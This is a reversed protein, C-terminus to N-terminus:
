IYGYIGRVSVEGAFVKTRSGDEKIVILEGRDDIGEATGDYEGKPDLVRVKAGANVCIKNYDSRLASLDGTDCFIEYYKEFAGTVEAVTEARSYTRGGEIRMSTATERIEEPFEETNVNIGTGVIVEHIYDPEATMETLIGVLKKGNVVIDNPWKIKVDLGSVKRIGEAAAMAMILTMMPAIEPSLSPRLLYSMAINVGAPTAWARGRRGKGKNQIDAVAILGEGAGAEARRKLEDNTSDIEDFFLLEKGLWGTNLLSQISRAGFAESTDVIRYGKGTVAEIEIGEKRLREIQKWIANRSLHMADAIEQGSVFGNKEKLFDILEM